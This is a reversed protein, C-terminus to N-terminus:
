RARTLAAGSAPAARATVAQTSPLDSENWGGGLAQILLVAATMRQGRIQVATTENTLATAQNSEVTRRIRRWLDLEWSFDLGLQFDSRPGSSAGAGSVGGGSSVGAGSSGGGFSRGFTASDRFRTYGLGVTLTPFYSARAERVLARAQQYTAEAEVLNQNSLNVQGELANLQPDGFIEWWAGRIVDDQPQAVKWGGVEKYAAPTIVTPRVYDPGVVCGTMLALVGAVTALTLRGRRMWQQWAVRLSVM